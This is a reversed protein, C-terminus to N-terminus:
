YYDLVQQKAKKSEPFHLFVWAHVMEAYEYYNIPIGKAEALSKLKRADAVFIERSGAFISIQGLGELAGNIPSVLYHATSLEGAYLRGAQQLAAVGSFPDVPDIDKIAPNELTIDLWPCLLLLNGPRPLGTEKIKQALALAIGGGASDGMLVINEPLTTHILEEYVATALAFTDRCSYKPAVPYDPATVACGSRVALETLFYWHPKTFGQAYAGGHFYLIHIAHNKNKAQLTFINRGNIQTKSVRCKESTKKPPVPYHYLNYKKLAVQHKLWNKKNILRLFVYFLKSQISALSILQYHFFAVPLLLAFWDNPTM